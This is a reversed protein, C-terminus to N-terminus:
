KFNICYALLFPLGLLCFAQGILFLILENEKVKGLYNDIKLYFLFAGVYPIYLHWKYSKTIYKKLSHIFKM